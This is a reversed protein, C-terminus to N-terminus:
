SHTRHVNSQGPKGRFAALVESDKICKRNNFKEAQLDLLSSIVQLNNKIRHHIEKKRAIEIKALMEEAKKHETIDRAVTVSGIINGGKDHVPAASVQRYRLKGHVPMCIIEEENKV